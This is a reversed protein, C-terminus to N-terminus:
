GIVESSIGEPQYNVAMAAVEGRTITNQGMLAGNNGMVENEVAWAVADTAWSSVSSADAYGGLASSDAASYKGAAKAYNALMAAFQERSIPDTPGFKGSGDQYGSVIGMKTGWAIAKAYYAGRDVDVYRTVYGANEELYDEDTGHLADFGSMRSIIVLADARTIQAEPAFFESGSVGKVYGLQKAQFVAQAYWADASVDAFGLSADTVTIPNTTGSATCTYNTDEFVFKVRYQGMDKMADVNSFGGGTGQRYEYGTVTISDTPLAVWTLDTVDWNQVSSGTAPVAINGDSDVYYGFELNPEQAEGTYGLYWVTNTVHREDEWTYSAVDGGNVFVQSLPMQSVTVTCQRATIGSTVDIEDNYGPIDLTITYPNGPDADVIEDVEEDKSNTVVVTYDTGEVLTGDSTKVTISLQDLFDKGDYVKSFSTGVKGDYNFIIDQAADIDGSKVTVKLTETGSGYAYNAAAANVRVNVYYVGAKQLASADVANHDSDEYSVTYWSAPLASNGDTVSLKEPKFSQGESLNLEVSPKTVFDVGDYKVNSGSLVKNVINFTATTSGTVNTNGSSAKIAVSGAGVGTSYTVDFTYTDQSTNSYSVGGVKFSSVNGTFTDVDVDDVTVSAESLDLKNVTLKFTKKQTGYTTGTGMGEITVTYTGAWTDGSYTNKGDFRNTVEAGSSDTVTLKYDSDSVVAGDIAVGIRQLGRNYTFETDTVDNGGDANDFLVADALNAAKAIVFNVSLTAGNYDGSGTYTIVMTYNGAATPTVDTGTNTNFGSYYKVTANSSDIKVPDAGGDPTVQTPKPYNGETVTLVGDSPVSLARGEDDTVGTLKGQEFAQHASLALTEIGDNVGEALAVMPVTGVSLVGVLAATVVRRAKGGHNTCATM